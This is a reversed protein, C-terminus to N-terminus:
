SSPISCNNSISDSSVYLIQKNKINNHYGRPRSLSNVSFIKAPLCPAYVSDDNEASAMFNSMFTSVRKKLFKKIGVEICYASFWKNNCDRLRQSILSSERTPMPPVQLLGREQLFLSQSPLSLHRVGYNETSLGPCM